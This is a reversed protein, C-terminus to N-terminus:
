NGNIIIVLKTKYLLSVDIFFFLSSLPSYGNTREKKTNKIM